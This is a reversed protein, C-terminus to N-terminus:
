IMGYLSFLPSTVAGHVSEGIMNWDWGPRLTADEGRRSGSSMTGCRSLLFIFGLTLVIAVPRVAM